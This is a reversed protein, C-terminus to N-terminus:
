GDTAGGSASVPRDTLPRRPSEQRSASATGAAKSGTVAAGLPLSLSGAATGLAAAASTMSARRSPGLVGSGSQPRLEENSVPNPVASPVVTILKFRGSQPRAARNRPRPLVRLEYPPPVLLKDTAAPPLISKAVGLEFSVGIVDLLVSDQATGADVQLATLLDGIFGFSQYLETASPCHGASHTGLNCGRYAHKASRPRVTQLCTM